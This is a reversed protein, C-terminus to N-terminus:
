QYRAPVRHALMQCGDTFFVRYYGRCKQVCQVLEDLCRLPRGNLDMFEVMLKRRTAEKAERACATCPDIHKAVSFCPPDGFKACHNRCLRREDETWERM